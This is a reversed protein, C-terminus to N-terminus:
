RTTSGHEWDRLDAAASEDGMDSLRKADAIAEKHKGLEHYCTARIRLAHKFHESGIPVLRITRNCDAIADAYRKLNALEFARRWYLGPEAPALRIACGYDAAAETFMKNRSYQRAREAYNEATPAKALAQNAKQIEAKAASDLEPKACLASGLVLFVIAAILSSRM